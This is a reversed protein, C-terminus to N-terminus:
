NIFQRHWVLHETVVCSILVVLVRLFAGTAIASQLVLDDDESEATSGLSSSSFSPSSSLAALSSSPSAKGDDESTETSQSRHHRSFSESSRNQLRPPVLSLNQSSSANTRPQSPLDPDFTSFTSVGDAYPTDLRAIPSPSHTPLIGRPGMPAHPAAHASSFSMESFNLPRPAHTPATSSQSNAISVSSNNSPSPRSDEEKTEFTDVCLSPNSGCSSTSVKREDPQDEVNM